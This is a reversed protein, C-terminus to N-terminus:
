PTGQVPAPLDHFPPFYTDPEEVGQHPALWRLTAYLAELFDDPEM